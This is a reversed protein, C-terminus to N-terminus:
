SDKSQSDILDEETTLEDSAKRKALADKTYLNFGMCPLVLLENYLLTGFVLSAYGPIVWPNFTELGVLMSIIWIFFTRSTDITCRQAASAFKTCAIGLSNYFAIDVVTLIVLTTAQASHGLQYFAFASNELYGYSCLVGFGQPDQQNGCTVMQFIPLLMLYYTLGWM